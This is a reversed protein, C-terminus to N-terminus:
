AAVRAPPFAEPDRAGLRARVPLPPRAPPQPRGPAVGVRVRAPAPLPARFVPRRAAARVAAAPAPVRAAAAAGAAATGAVAFAAVLLITPPAPRSRVPRAIDLGTDVGGRPVPSVQRAPGTASGGADGSGDESSDSDASGGVDGQDAAGTSEAGTSRRCWDIRRREVRRREIRRREIRRREIRRRRGRRPQRVLGRLGSRRPRRGVAGPRRGALRARAPRANAASTRATGSTPRPTRWGAWHSRAPPPWWYPRPPPGSACRLGEVTSCHSASGLAAFGARTVPQHSFWGRVQTWRSGSPLTHTCGRQSNLGRGSSAGSTPRGGRRCGRGGRPGRRRRRAPPRRSCRCGSGATAPCRTANPVEPCRPEDKLVANLSSWMAAVLWAMQSYRAACPVSPGSNRPRSVWASDSGAM